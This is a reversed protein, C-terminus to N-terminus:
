NQVAVAEKEDASMPTAAPEPENKSECKPFNEFKASVNQVWYSGFRVEFWYTCTTEYTYILFNTIYILYSRNLKADCGFAMEAM